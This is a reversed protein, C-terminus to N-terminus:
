TSRAKKWCSSAASSARGAPNRARDARHRASRCLRHARAARRHEPGGADRPKGFRRGHDPDTLVSVYPLQAQALQALAASTKAMQFLSLMAEQMRAGGSASFCVLPARDALCRQVARPLARGGGFGDLRRPLFIRIRLGRDARRAAPRGARDACGKRRHEEPCRRAPGQLAQQGQLAASRGAHRKRRDRRRHGSRPLPDPARACPHAHSPQVQPLCAPQAGTRRSVARCRLGPCKIWLGEPVSRVRRETKIRSPVIKEFWSM